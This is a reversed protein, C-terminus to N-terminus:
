GSSQRGDGEEEKSVKNGKREEKACECCDTSGDPNVVWSGIKLHGCDLRDHKTTTENPDYPM